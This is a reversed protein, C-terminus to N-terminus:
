YGFNAAKKASVLSMEMVIADEPQITYYGKKVGTTVFGLKHYLRRAKPNSPRVELFIKTNGERKALEIVTALLSKGLGFNRYRPGIAFNSIHAVGDPQSWWGCYGAIMGNWIAVIYRAMKNHLLENKFAEAPWPDPFSQKDIERIWNIDNLNMPRYYFGTMMMNM